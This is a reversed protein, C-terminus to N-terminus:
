QFLKQNEILEVIQKDTLPLLNGKKERSKTYQFNHIPTTLTKGKEDKIKTDVYSLVSGDTTIHITKPIM